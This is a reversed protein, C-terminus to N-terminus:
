NQVVGADLPISATSRKEVVCLTGSRREVKALGQSAGSFSRDANRLTSSVLTGLILELVSLSGPKAPFIYDALFLFPYRRSVMPKTSHKSFTLIFMWCKAVKLPITAFIFLYSAKNRERCEPGM